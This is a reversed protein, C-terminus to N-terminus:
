NSINLILPIPSLSIILSFILLVFIAQASQLLLCLLLKSVCVCLFLCLSVCFLCAHVCLFAGGVEEFAAFSDESRVPDKEMYGLHNDTTIMIRVLDNDAM